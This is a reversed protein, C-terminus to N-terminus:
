KGPSNSKVVKSVIEERSKGECVRNVRLCLTHKFVMAVSLHAVGPKLRITSGRHPTCHSGSM